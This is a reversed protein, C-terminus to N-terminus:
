RRVLKGRLRAFVKKEPTKPLYYSVNLFAAWVLGTKSTKSNFTWTVGNNAPFGYMSCADKLEIDTDGKKNLHGVNLPLTLNGTSPPTEGYTTVNDRDSLGWDTTDVAAGIFGWGVRANLAYILQHDTGPPHVPSNIATLKVQLNLSVIIANDPIGSTDISYYTRKIVTSNSESAYTAGVGTPNNYETYTSGGDFNIWGHIHPYIIEVEASM